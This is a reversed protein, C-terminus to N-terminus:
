MRCRRFCEPRKGARYLIEQLRQEIEKKRSQRVGSGEGPNKQDRSGPHGQTEPGGHPQLFVGEQERVLETYLERLERAERSLATSGSLRLLLQECHMRVNWYYKREYSQNFYSIRIRNLVSIQAALERVAEQEEELGQPDLYVFSASPLDDEEAQRYKELIGMAFAYGAAAQIGIRVSKHGPLDRRKGTIDRAARKLEM